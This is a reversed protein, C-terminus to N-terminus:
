GGGIAGVIEGNIEIPLGGGLIFMRDNMDGLFPSLRMEQ